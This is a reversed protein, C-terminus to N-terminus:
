LYHIEVSGQYLCTKIKTARNEIVSYGLLIIIYIRHIMYQLELSGM